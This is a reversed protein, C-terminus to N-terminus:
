YITRLFEENKFSVSSSNPIKVDLLLLKYAVEVHVRLLLVVLLRVHLDLSAVQHDGRLLLGDAPLLVGRSADVRLYSASKAIAFPWM